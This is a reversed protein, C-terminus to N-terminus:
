NELESLLAKLKESEPMADLTSKILKISEQKRTKSAKEATKVIVAELRAIGKKAAKNEPELKLVDKYASYASKGKPLFLQKKQIRSKATKFLAVIDDTPDYEPKQKAVPKLAQVTPKPKPKAIKVVRTEHIISSDLDLVISQRMQSRLESSILPSVLAKIQYRYSNDGTWGKDVVRINSLQARVESRVEDKQIKFNKIESVHDIVVVSGKESANLEAEKQARERCSRVTEKDGCFVEKTGIHEQPRQLQKISQELKKEVISNRISELQKKIKQLSNKAQAEKLSIEKISQKLTSQRKEESKVQQHAEQYEKQASVVKPGLGIDPNERDLKQFRALKQNALAKDHKLQELNSSSTEFDLNTNTLEQEIISLEAQKDKYKLEIARLEKYKQQLVDANSLSSYLAFSILAIVLTIYRQTKIM